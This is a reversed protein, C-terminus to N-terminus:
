GGSTAPATTQGQDDAEAQVVAADEYVVPLDAMSADAPDEVFEINALDMLGGVEGSDAYDISDVDPAAGTVDQAAAAMPLATVALAVAAAAIAPRFRYSVCVEGSCSALFAMREADTMATLDHVQRKCMRCQDGDMVAALNATYPCPSQIKPFIAM